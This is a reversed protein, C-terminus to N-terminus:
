RTCHTVNRLCRPRNRLWAVNGGVRQGPRQRWSGDRTRGISRLRTHEPALRYDPILIATATRVAIHSYGDASGLIFWGGHLYLIASGREATSPLCWWGAVGRITAQEYSVGPAASIRTMVADYVPRAEPGRMKGRNPALAERLKARVPVDSAILPRWVQVSESM